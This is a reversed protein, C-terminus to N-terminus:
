VCGAPDSHWHRESMNEEFLDDVGVPGHVMPLVERFHSFPCPRHYSAPREILMRKYYAYPLVAKSCEDISLFALTYVFWDISHFM